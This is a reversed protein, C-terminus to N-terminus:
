RVIFAHRCLYKIDALSSHSNRRLAAIRWRLWRNLMRRFTQESKHTIYHEYALSITESNPRPDLYGSHCGVCRYLTWLGPAGFLRDSLIM